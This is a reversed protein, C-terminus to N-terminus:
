AHRVVLRRELRRVGASALLSLALFLLGVLTLPELYRFREAGIIKATQLLELVTIAALLPTDKFMAVGYNGLAPVIPPIAQPLVVRRWTAPTSFGLARAAEWQGRPVAEIGARYVEAAYSSYHLGLAIVGTALPSLRLGLGPLAYYLFYIQILLPTSRVAEVILSGARALWVLPSRRVIALVLGLVLALLSGAVTAAVTVRLASLLAPLIELAFSVDFTM